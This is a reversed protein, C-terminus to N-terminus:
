ISAATPSFAAGALVRALVTDALSKDSRAPTASERPLPAPSRCCCSADATTSTAATGRSGTEELRSSGLSTRAPGEGSARCRSCSSASSDCAAALATSGARWRPPRLSPSSSCPAPCNSTDLEAEAARAAPPWSPPSSLPAASSSGCRLRSSSCRPSSATSSCSPPRSCTWLAPSTAPSCSSASRPLRTCCATCCHLRKESRSWQCVPKQSVRRVAAALCSSAQCAPLCDRDSSSSSAAAPCCSSATPRRNTAMESACFPRSCPISTRM